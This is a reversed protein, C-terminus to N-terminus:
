DDTYQYGKRRRLDELFCMLHYLSEQLKHSQASNRNRGGAGQNEGAAELLQKAWHYLCNLRRIALREKPSSMVEVMM